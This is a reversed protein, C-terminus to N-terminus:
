KLEKISTQSAIGVIQTRRSPMHRVVWAPTRKLPNPLCLTLSAADGLTLRSSACRFYVRSADEVGYIGPGFEVVNLYVEMIRRKGWINEILLTYYAEVAKRFWTHTGWTFCNKATQQSITSCGRLPKGQKSHKEEMAQLEVIDFGNHQFFRADESALVCRKISPSVDELNVWTAGGPWAAKGQVVRELMLPTFKVPVWKYLFVQFLSFVVFCVPIWLFVIKLFKKM